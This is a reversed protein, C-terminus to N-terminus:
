RPGNGAPVSSRSEQLPEGAQGPHSARAPLRRSLVVVAVAACTQVLAGIVYARGEGVHPLAELFITGFIAVGLALASQQVTSFLGATAGAAHAPVGSLVVGLLPSMIMSQGAGALLMGPVLALPSLRAGQTAVTIALIVLGVGQIVGGVTIVTSGWRAVLRATTLSGAFFVVGMPVLGVGARLATWGLAVQTLEAYVFMFGSFGTFFPLAIGLGRRIGTLRLLSPALLPTGGSRELRGEVRILAWALFPSMAFLGFAWGPWGQSRGEVLPVLVALVTAGLLATGWLDVRTPRESRTDPLTRIALVMALLGVPINIMFIPRWGTGALDASVLAGGGLQGLVAALGGTAAFASLARARERGATTAQVTALVQPVMLAAAAGQAIRAVVLTIATPAFGCMASTITFAVMGLLFMRRRGFADGLRGGIVLLLAYTIAYGAVILELASTSASLERGIDVLAVNVVFFDAMALFIGSLLAILALPRLGPAATTRM